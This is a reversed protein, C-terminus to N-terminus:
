DSNVAALGAVMKVQRQMEESDSNPSPRLATMAETRRDADRLGARADIVWQRYLNPM